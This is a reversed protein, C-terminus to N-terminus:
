IVAAPFGRRAWWIRFRCTTCSAGSWCACSSAGSWETLRAALVYEIKEAAIGLRGCLLALAEDWPNDTGHGYHADSRSLKTAMWRLYDAVTELEESANM